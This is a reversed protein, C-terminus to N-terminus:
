VPKIYIKLKLELKNHRERQQIKDGEFRISNKVREMHTFIYFFFRFNLVKGSKVIGEYEMNIEYWLGLLEGFSARSAM